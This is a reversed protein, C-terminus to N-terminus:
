VSSSRTSSKTAFAVVADHADLCPARRRPRAAAAIDDALRHLQEFLMVQEVVGIDDDEVDEAIDNAAAECRRQLMGIPRQDDGGVIEVGDERHVADHRRNVGLRLVVVHAQAPTM